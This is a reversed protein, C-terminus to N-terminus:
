DNRLCPLHSLVSRELGLSDVLLDNRLAQWLGALHELGTKCALNWYHGESRIQPKLFLCGM